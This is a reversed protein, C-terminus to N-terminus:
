IEGDRAPHGKYEFSLECKQTIITLMAMQLGPTITIVREESSLKNQTLQVSVTNSQRRKCYQLPPSRASYKCQLYVLRM